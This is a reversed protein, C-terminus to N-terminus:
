IAAANADVSRLGDLAALAVGKSQMERQPIRFGAGATPGLRALLNQAGNFAKGRGM